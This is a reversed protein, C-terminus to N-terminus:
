GEIGIMRFLDAADANTTCYGGLEAVKRQVPEEMSEEGSLEL